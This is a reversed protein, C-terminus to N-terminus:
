KRIYITQQTVTYGGWYGLACPINGLVRTPSSFPNGNTNYAYDVTRWFDWTSKDINCFKLTITDGRTFLGYTDSDQKINRDVGADLPIEFTTGNVIHDDIVSTLGPYFPM